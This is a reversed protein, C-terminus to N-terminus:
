GRWKAMSEKVGKGKELDKRVNEDIDRGEKGKEVVREVLDPPVAVCGDEDCVIIDGPKVIIRYEFSPSYLSAISPSSYYHPSMDIPVSLLSPRVFSKQGLTTHYSAYVPFGLERHEALDRCGGRIVVGKLGKAKAATSMLGGWCGANRIRSTRPPDINWVWVFLQRTFLGVFHEKSKPPEDERQVNEAVMQVTFAPGVVKLKLGDSPSYLHLDPLYGGTQVGLKILADSIECTSLEELSDFTQRQTM